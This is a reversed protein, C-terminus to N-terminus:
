DAPPLELLQGPRILDPEPGIAAVNRAYIRHWYDVVEAITARRGLRDEAITWLSDGPRVRVTAAHSPPVPGAGVARDPLQLGSLSAPGAPRHDEAAAAGTTAGLVVAGCAALLILRV